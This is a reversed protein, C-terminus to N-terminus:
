FAFSQTRLTGDADVQMVTFEQTTFHPSKILTWVSFTTPQQTLLKSLRQREEESKVYQLLLVPLTQVPNAEVAGAIRQAVRDSVVLKCIAYVNIYPATRICLQGSGWCTVDGTLAALKSISATNTALDNIRFVQGWSQFVSPISDDNEERQNRASAAATTPRLQVFQGATSNLSGITETVASPKTQYVANLNVKRTEDDLIFECECDGLQVTGSLPEYVQHSSEPILIERSRRLLASAVSRRAWKHQLTSVVKISESHLRLSRRTLGVLALSVIVIAAITTLLIMGRRTSQKDHEPQQNLLQM